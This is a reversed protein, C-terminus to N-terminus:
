YKIIQKYQMKFAERTVVAADAVGVEGGGITAAVGFRKCEPPIGFSKLEVIM